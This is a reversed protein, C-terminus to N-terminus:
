LFLTVLRVSSVFTVKITVFLEYKKTSHWFISLSIFAHSYSICISSLFLYVLETMLFCLFIFNSYIVSNSINPLM